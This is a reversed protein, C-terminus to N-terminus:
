ECPYPTYYKLGLQECQHVQEKNEYMSKLTLSVVFSSWGILSLIYFVVMLIKIADYEVFKFIDEILFIAAMIGIVLWINTM